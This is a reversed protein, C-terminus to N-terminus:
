DHACSTAGIAMVPRFVRRRDLPALEGGDMSRPSLACILETRRSIGGTLVTAARGVGTGCRRLRHGKDEREWKAFQMGFATTRVVGRPVWVDTDETEM